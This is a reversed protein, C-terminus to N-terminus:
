IPQVQMDSEANPGALQGFWIFGIIPGQIICPDRMLKDNGVVPTLFSKNGNLAVWKLGDNSAALHLGDEGNGKFYSFIYVDHEPKSFGFLVILVIASLLYKYM